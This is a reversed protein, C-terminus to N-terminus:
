SKLIEQLLSGVYGLLALILILPPSRWLPGAQFKDGNIITAFHFIAIEDWPPKSNWSNSARLSKIIVLQRFGCFYESM